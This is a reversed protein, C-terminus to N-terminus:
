PIPAKGESQPRVNPAQNTPVQDKTSQYGSATSALDVNM